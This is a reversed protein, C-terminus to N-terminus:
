FVYEVNSEFMVESMYTSIFNNLVVNGYKYFWTVSMDRFYLYTM